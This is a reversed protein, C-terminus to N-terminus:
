MPDANNLVNLKIQIPRLHRTHAIQAHDFAAVWLCVKDKIHVDNKSHTNKKRVLELSWQGDRWVGKARVDGRDGEFQNSRYLVSPIIFDLPFTDLEPRFAAYDFWTGYNQSALFQFSENPQFLHKKPLRKPVVGEPTFWQWNMVYAGSQKVDQQYGATYRRSGYKVPEPPGIYNDDAQNKGNTRVAKWQWLDHRQHDDSYHYGRAHWNAPKAPLPKSGLHATGAAAISCSSSVLVALKDEYYTKENFNQFGDHQVKWGNRTKVIPLHSDSETKDNWQFHFYIEEQNHLAKIKVHTNGKFFGLGGFTFINISEAKEWIPENAHGDIDIWEQQPIAAVGLKHTMWNAGNFSYELLLSLLFVPIVILTFLIIKSVTSFLKAPPIFIFKVFSVGGKVFYSVAHMFFYLVFGVATALHIYRFWPRGEGPTALSQPLWATDQLFHMSLGSALAAICLLLGFYRVCRHYGWTHAKPEKIRLRYPTNRLFFLLLLYTLISTVVGAAAMMHIAFVNGQPLIPTLWQLSSYHHSAIRFGSFINVIVSLAICLHLGQWLARVFKAFFANGGTNAIHNHLNNKIYQFM